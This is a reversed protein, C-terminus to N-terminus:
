ARTRLTRTGSRSPPRPDQQTFGTVANGTRWVPEALVGDLTIPGATRVTVVPPPAASVEGRVSASLVFVFCVCYLVNM